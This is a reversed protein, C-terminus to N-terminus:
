KYLLGIENQYVLLKQDLEQIEQKLEDLQKQKREIEQDNLASLALM